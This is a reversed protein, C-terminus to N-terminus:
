TKSATGVTSDSDIVSSLRNMLLHLRLKNHIIASFPGEAGSRQGADGQHKLLKTHVTASLPRRHPAEPRYGWYNLLLM